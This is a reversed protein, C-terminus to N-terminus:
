GDSDSNSSSSSGGMRLNGKGDGLVLDIVATKQLLAGPEILEGKHRLQLVEDKAIYPRYTVKGIKFGLSILTPEAQRRTRGVVNPIPLSRYDSRNVTLYITRNEKVMSGAKPLQEIISQKPYEPNYNTTDLIEWRLDLESLASNAEDLTMKALDPVQIQQDHNTSVRLYFLLLFVLGVTVLLALGLQKLFTKTLLFRVFSM